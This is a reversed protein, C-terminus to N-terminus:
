LGENLNAFVTKINSTKQMFREQDLHLFQALAEDYDSLCLHRVGAKSRFYIKKTRKAYLRNVANKQREFWRFEESPNLTEHLIRLEIPDLFHELERLTELQAVKDFGSYDNSKMTRKIELEETYSFVDRESKRQRWIDIALNKVIKKIFARTQKSDMSLIKEKKSVEFIKFLAMQTCDQIDEYKNFFKKAIFRVLPQYKEINDM